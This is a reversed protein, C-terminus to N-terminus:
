MASEIEVDVDYNHPNQGRSAASKLKEEYGEPFSCKGRFMNLARLAGALDANNQVKATIHGTFVLRPDDYDMIFTSRTEDFTRLLEDGSVDAFGDRDVFLLYYFHNKKSSEFRLSVALGEPCAPRVRVAVNKPFNCTSQM